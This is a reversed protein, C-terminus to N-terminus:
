RPPLSGTPARQPRREVRATRTTSPSASTAAFSSSCRCYRCPRGACTPRARLEITRDHQCARHQQEGLDRAVRFGTKPSRVRLPWADASEAKLSLRKTDQSPQSFVGEWAESRMRGSERPPSTSPSVSEPLSHSSNPSLAPFGLTARMARAPVRAFGIGLLQRTERCAHHRARFGSSRKERIWVDMRSARDTSERLGPFRELIECKGHLLEQIFEAPAYGPRASGTQRLRDPRQGLLAACARARPM